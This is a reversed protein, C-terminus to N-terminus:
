DAKHSAGDPYIVYLTIPLMYFKILVKAREVFKADKPSEVILLLGGPRSTLMSYHLAQGIGEYFKIAFDVETAMDFTLCDCRTGDEMRVEVQGNQEACWIDQYYREVNIHKAFAPSAFFLITLLLSLTKMELRAEISV